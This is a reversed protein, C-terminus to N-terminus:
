YASNANGIAADSTSNSSNFIDVINGALTTVGEKFKPLLISAGAVAGLVVVAIILMYETATQGSQDNLRSFWKKKM